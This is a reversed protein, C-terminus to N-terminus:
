CVNDILFPAIDINDMIMEIAEDSSHTFVRIFYLLNHDKSNSERDILMMNEFYEGLTAFFHSFYTVMDNEFYASINQLFYKIFSYHNETLEGSIRLTNSLLDM